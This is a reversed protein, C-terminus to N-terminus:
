HTLAREVLERAAEIAAVFRDQRRMVEVQACRRLHDDHMESLDAAPALTPLPQVTYAPDHRFRAERTYNIPVLVRSLRHLAENRKDVPASPLKDLAAKLAETAAKAASLDAMGKAVAHYSKITGLFEDCTAQWDFPLVEANVV